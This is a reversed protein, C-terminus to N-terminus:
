NCAKGKQEKLVIPDYTEGFIKWVKTHILYIREM